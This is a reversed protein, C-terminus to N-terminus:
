SPTSKKGTGAVGKLYVILQLGDLEGVSYLMRGIFAYMWRCAEEPLHQADLIQQLNPTPLAYWEGGNNVVQDRAVEDFALDFYKSACVEANLVQDVRGGEYPIFMDRVGGEGVAPNGPKLISDRLWAVYVGNNFAFIHRDKQIVPFRPDNRNAAIHAPIDTQFSGNSTLKNYLDGDAMFVNCTDFLAQQITTEVKFARTNYGNSKVVSYCLEECGKVDLARLGYMAARDYWASILETRVCDPTKPQGGTEGIEHRVFQLLGAKAHAIASKIAELRRVVDSRGEHPLSGSNFAVNLGTAVGAFEAWCRRSAVEIRNADFESEADFHRCINSLVSAPTSPTRASWKRELAELSDLLSGPNHAPSPPALSQTPSNRPDPTPSASFTRPPTAFEDDDEADPFLHRAGSDRDSESDSEQM